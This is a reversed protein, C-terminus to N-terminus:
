EIALTSTEIQDEGVKSPKSNKNGLGKLKGLRKITVSIREWYHKPNDMLM